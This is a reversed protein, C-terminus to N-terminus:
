TLGRRELELWVRRAQPEDGSCAELIRAYRAHRYAIVCLALAQEYTLPRSAIRQEAIRRPSM